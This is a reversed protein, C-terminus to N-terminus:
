CSSSPLWMTASCLTAYAQANPGDRLLHAALGNNSLYLKDQAHAPFQWTTCETDYAVHAETRM